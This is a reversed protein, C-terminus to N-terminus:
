LKSGEQLILTARLCDQIDAKSSSQGGVTMKSFFEAQVSM